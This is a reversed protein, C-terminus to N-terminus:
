LAAAAQEARQARAEAEVVTELTPREQAAQVVAQDEMEVAQMCTGAALASSAPLRAKDKAARQRPPMAVTEATKVVRVRHPLSAAAQVVAQDEMEAM